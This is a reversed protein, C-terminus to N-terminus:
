VLPLLLIILNVYALYVLVHVPFLIYLEGLKCMLSTYLREEM